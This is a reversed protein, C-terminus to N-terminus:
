SEVFYGSQLLSTVTQAEPTAHWWAPHAAPRPPLDPASVSGMVSRAGASALTGSESRGTGVSGLTGLSPPESGASTDYWRRLDDHQWVDRDASSYRRVDMAKDPQRLWQDESRQGRMAEQFRSKDVQSRRVLRERELRRALREIHADARQVREALAGSRKTVGLPPAAGELPVMARPLSSGFATAFYVGRLERKSVRALAEKPFGESFRKQPGGSRM